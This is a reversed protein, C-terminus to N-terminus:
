NRFFIAGTTQSNGIYISGGMNNTANNLSNSYLEINGCQVLTYPSVASGIKIIQQSGSTPALCGIGM